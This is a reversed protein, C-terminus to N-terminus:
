VRGSLCVAMMVNLDRNLFHNKAQLLFFEIDGRIINISLM